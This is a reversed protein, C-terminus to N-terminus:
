RVGEAASERLKRTQEKVQERALAENQQFLAYEKEALEPKGIRRYLRALVYRLRNMSADLSLAQRYEAIAREINGELEYARGLDARVDADGADAALAQQLYPLGKGPERLGVHIRGLRLKAAISHPNSELEKRCEAMAEAFNSNALHYDVLAIRIDPIGPGAAIAARYEELAERKGQADLNRARLFHAWPSDPYRELLERFHQDSLQRYIEWRLLLVAPTSDQFPALRRAVLEAKVADERWLWVNALLYDRFWDKPQAPIQELAAIAEALRHEVIHGAVANWRAKPTMEAFRKNADAPLLPLPPVAGVQPLAQLEAAYDIKIGVDALEQRPLEKRDITTVRESPLLARYRALAVDSATDLGLVALWRALPFFLSANFADRKAAELYEKAAIQYFQQGDVIKALMQYEHASEPFRKSLGNATQEALRLYGNGALHLLVDREGQKALGTRVVAVAEEYRKLMTLTLGLFGASEISPQAKHAFQLHPLAKAPQDTFAYSSGLFLRAGIMAPKLALGAEFVAIAEPYQRQLYHVLGLNQYVEPVAKPYKAVIAGYHEIAIAFNGTTEAAKAAAFHAEIFEEAGPTLSQAALHIAALLLITM